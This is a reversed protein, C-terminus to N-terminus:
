YLCCLIIICFLVSSFFFAATVKESSTLNEEAARRLESLKLPSAAAGSVVAPAREVLRAQDTNYPSVMYQQRADTRIFRGNSPMWDSHASPDVSWQEFECPVGSGNAGAGSRGDDFWRVIQVVDQNDVFCHPFFLAPERQEYIFRQISTLLHLLHGFRRQKLTSLTGNSLLVCKRHVANDDEFYNMYHKYFDRLVAAIPQLALEFDFSRYYEEEHLRQLSLSSDNRNAFDHYFDLVSPIAAAAAASRASATTSATTTPPPPVQQTPENGTTNNSGSTTTTTTTTTFNDDDEESSLRLLSDESDSENSLRHVDSAGRRRLMSRRQYSTATPPPASQLNNNAVANGGFTGDDGIHTSSRRENTTTPPPSRLLNFLSTSRKQGASDAIVANNRTAPPPPMAPPPTLRAQQQQRNPSVLQAPRHQQDILKRLRQFQEIYRRARGVLERQGGGGPRTPENGRFRSGCCFCFQIRAYHMRSVGRVPNQLFKDREAPLDLLQTARKDGNFAPISQSTCWICANQDAPNPVLRPVRYRALGDVIGILTHTRSAPAASPSEAPDIGNPM